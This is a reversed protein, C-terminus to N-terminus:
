MLIDPYSSLPFRTVILRLNITRFLPSLTNPSAVGDPVSVGVVVVLGEGVKAKDDGVGESVTEGVSIGEGVVITVRGVESGGREPDFLGVRIKSPAPRAM